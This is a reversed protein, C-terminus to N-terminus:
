STGGSKASSKHGRFPNKRTSARPFRLDSRVHSTTKGLTKSPKSFLQLFRRAQWEFDVKAVDVVCFNVGWILWAPAVKSNGRSDLHNAALNIGRESWFPIEEVPM